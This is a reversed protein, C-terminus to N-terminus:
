QKGSRQITVGERTIILDISPNPTTVLIDATHPSTNRNYNLKYDNIQGIYKLNDLQDILLNEFDIDENNFIKNNDLSRIAEFLKSRLEDIINNNSNM